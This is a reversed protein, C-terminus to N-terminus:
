LGDDEIGFDLDMDDNVSRKAYAEKLEADRKTKADEDLEDDFFYNSLEIEKQIWDVESEPLWTQLTKIRERAEEESGSIFTDPVSVTIEAEVNSPDIYM